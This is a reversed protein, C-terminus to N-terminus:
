KSTEEKVRKRIQMIYDNMEKVCSPNDLCGERSGIDHVKKADEEVNKNELRYNGAHGGHWCFDCPKIYEIRGM